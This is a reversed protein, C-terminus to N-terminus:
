ANSKDPSLSGCIAFVTEAEGKTILPDEDPHRVVVSVRKRNFDFPIEDVKDHGVISRAEHKLIADDLPSKIGAEFHSNMYILQLVNADDKSQFDVHRDLVIEGETLTGAKDTCLIDVSGFDEIASLQKVMVKKRTMRKAGQARTVTVIMPVM